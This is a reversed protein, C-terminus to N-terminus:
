QSIIVWNAGNSQVMFFQYQVNLTKTTSGDITQSSTTALTITGTGSNKVCYCRGTIGAATPLTITFTGSTCDVTYDSSTLTYLATKAVYPLALSGGIHVTSTALVNGGFYSNSNVTFPSLPTAINVGVSGATTVLAYNNTGGSATFKGATHTTAAGSLTINIGNSTGGSSALTVAIGTGGSNWNGNILNFMTHVVTSNFSKIRFINTATNSGTADNFMYYFTSNTASPDCVFSSLTSSGGTARINFTGTGDIAVISTMGTNVTWTTSGVALVDIISAGRAQVRFPKVTASANTTGLTFLYGTGTTGTETLSLSNAASGNMNWSWVQANVGNSISNSTTAATLSSLSAVASVTQWTNDERLYKTAGGGGTGLYAQNIINGQWTGTGITGLTTISTQGVYTASIDITNGGTVTIRNATGSVSTLYTSNDFSIVSGNGKLFGTGTTTTSTTINDLTISRDPITIVRDATIGTSVLSTYFGGDIKWKLNGVSNAFLTTHNGSSVADASQWRMTFHGNGATGTIKVGEANLDNTGLDVDGTAGIYPVYGILASGYNPINLTNGTLTAVGSTGLTTLSTIRNTYATNWNSASAIRADALTGTWGLTLSTDQLLATSPTGGLTLTVNTDDVKTLASPTVSPITPFTAISGDGRVYQATSGLPYPYYTTNDYSITTGSIKVFGTGSLANQKNFFTNWDTSSLYGDTTTNAQSITINPTAGGSSALPLSATVDTVSGGGGIVSLVGTGDITLGSGVKIGGLVSTSAIPLVYGGIPTNAVVFEKLGFIQINMAPVGGRNETSIYPQIVEGATLLSENINFTVYSANGVQQTIPAFFQAIETPTPM